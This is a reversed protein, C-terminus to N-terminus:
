EIYRTVFTRLKERLVLNSIHLSDAQPMLKNYHFVQERNAMYDAPCPIVAVGQKEFNLVSREMHFASTVLVPSSWGHEHLIKATFQANQGTTLSNAETYIMEEPVGLRMLERKAIIAEKGSDEYVQGGSLIIPVSLRKQLECALLLRSAPSSTINGVDGLSPTDSTAGGGLMIIVDGTPNAPQEHVSELSSMLHGAVLGTSLLYFLFTVTVTAVAACRLGRRWIYISLFWTLLFFIGPILIFSAGFKLLYIM